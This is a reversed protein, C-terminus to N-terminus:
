DKDDKPIMAVVEFTPKLLHTTGCKPCNTQWIDDILDPLWLVFREECQHCHIEQM